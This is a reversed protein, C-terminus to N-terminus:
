NAANIDVSLEKTKPQTFLIKNLKRKIKKIVALKNFAWDIPKVRYITFGKRELFTQRDKDQHYYNLGLRWWGDIELGLVFEDQRTTFVLDIKLSGVEYDAVLNLHAYKTHGKLSRSLSRQVEAQFNSKAKNDDQTAPILTAPASYVKQQAASLDLFELWTRFVLFDASRCPRIERATVSKVVIVKKKARSISVNLANKGGPRAVYTGATQTTADYVVSMIVLDAEDGQINEINKVMITGTDWRRRITQYKVNDIIIEEVLQRQKVNFTLIIISEYVPDTLHRLCLDLTLCAEAWNRGEEWRGEPCFVVEVPQVLKQNLCDIVQLQSDYFHKSSFSMLAAAESRYNKELMVSHVGKDAAYDLLSTAHEPTDEADDTNRTQFWSSPQLQQHDGAIVKTKALWMLALGMETFMQSAEDIIVYDFYARQRWNELLMEPTTVFVTFLQNIIAEHKKLFTWPLLRGARVAAAFAAYRKYNTNPDTHRTHYWREIKVHIAQALKHAINTQIQVTPLEHRQDTLPYFFKKNQLLTQITTISTSQLQQAIANLDLDPLAMSFTFAHQAAVAFRRPYWLFMRKSVKSAVAAKKVYHRQSLGQTHRPYSYTGDIQPLYGVAQEYHGHLLQLTNLSAAYSAPNTTAIRFFTKFAAYEQPKMISNKYNAHDSSAQSSKNEVLRIFESLPQYFDAKDFEHNYRAHRDIIFFTFIKLQGLRDWLVDLATKKRSVVLAKQGINAIVNAILNAIVQSKGTGPPGWIITNQKLGSILAKKQQFNMPIMEAIRGNNHVFRDICREYKQKNFAVDLIEDIQNEKVIQQMIQRLRGGLPNVLGFVLGPWFKIETWKIDDRKLGLFPQQLDVLTVNGKTWNNFITLKQELSVVSNILQLPLKFEYRELVFRLKENFFWEEDINHLVVRKSKLVLEVKKLFMPACIKKNAIRLTIFFTGVHLSYIGEDFLLSQFQKLFLTWRKFRKQFKTELKQIMKQKHTQFEDETLWTQELIEILKRSIREHYHDLTKVLEGGNTTQKVAIILKELDNDNLNIRFKSAELVTKIDNPHIKTTLDFRNQSDVKFFLAPDQAKIELLNDLLHQRESPPQALRSM